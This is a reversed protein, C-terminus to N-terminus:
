GVDCHAVKEQRYHQGVDKTVTVAVLCKHGGSYAESNRYLLPKPVSVQSSSSKRRPLWKKTDGSTKDFVKWLGSADNLVAPPGSHGM